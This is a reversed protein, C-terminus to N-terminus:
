KQAIEEMVKEMRKCASCGTAGFELFTIEYEAGNKTYYYLSDIFASASQKTVSNAKAKISKSTFETLKGKLAFPSVIFLVWFVLFAINLWQKAKTSLKLNKM